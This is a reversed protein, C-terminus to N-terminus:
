GKIVELRDKPFSFGFTSGKGEVTEFIISGGQAVVVKKAMFLGLGTGDPRAKRANNARYFKTFLKHRDGAPVGIGTDRVTFEVSEKKDKLSITIKGGSPTYYIANDTFNMIVQRIKMEDLNLTAFKKPKDFRLTIDKAAAGETLQSIESEVVTPLYTPKPEIMFKGTRLRSVNLLDAILYVMRQSSFLAQALMKKQEENLKGVDEEAVMSVYGKISTLPTRLQHSAMSVFEDKAEDLARLKENTRKLEKTADDIKKQLTANFEEIEEYRLANEVGVVLEDGIIELIKQDQASYINGSKKSGIILYGIGHVEFELTSVIRVLVDIEAHKLIKIAANEFENDAVEHSLIVKKHVKILASELAKTDSSSLKSRYDGIMREPYYPTERIFFTCFETSMNREIVEASKQLLPELDLNGVLVGNLEGLFTQPEYGDRYFVKKTVKNLEKKLPEFVFLLLIVASVQFFLRSFRDNEFIGNIVLDTLLLYSTAMLSILIVYAVARAAILRTDLLGHKFMALSFFIVMFIAVNPGYLSLDNYGIVPLVGNFIVGPIATLAIGMLIYRLQARKATSKIMPYHRVMDILESMTYALIVPIAFWYLPGVVTNQGYSGISVINLRTPVLSTLPVLPLALKFAQKKAVGEDLIFLRIFLLFFFSALLPGILTLRAFILSISASSSVNTLVSLTLWLFISFSFGFLARNIARKQNSVITLISLLLALFATVTLFLNVM